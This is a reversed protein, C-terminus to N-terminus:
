SGGRRGAAPKRKGPDSNNKDTWSEGTAPDSRSKTDDERNHCHTAGKLPGTWRTSGNCLDPRPALVPKSGGILLGNESGGGSEPKPNRVTTQFFSSATWATQAACPINVAVEVGTRRGLSKLYAYTIADTDERVIQLRATGDAHHKRGSFGEEENNCIIRLGAELRVEILAVGSNHLSSALDHPPV